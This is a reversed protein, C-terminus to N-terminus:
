AKFINKHPLAHFFDNIKNDYNSLKKTLSDSINLNLEYNRKNRHPFVDDYESNPFYESLFNGLIEKTGKNVDNFNVLYIKCDDVIDSFQNLYKVYDVKDIWYEAYIEFEFNKYKERDRTIPHDPYREDGNIFIHKHMYYWSILADKPSRYSVLYVPEGYESLYKHSRRSVDENFMTSSFKGFSNNSKLKKLNDFSLINDDHQKLLNFEIVPKGNPGDTYLISNKTPEFNKFFNWISSTGCKSFGVNYINPM